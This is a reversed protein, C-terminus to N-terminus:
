LELITKAIINKQIENAGGYISAKRTDLYQYTVASSYETYLLADDGYGLEDEIFPLAYPGVAKTM